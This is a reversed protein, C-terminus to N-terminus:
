AAPLEPVIAGAYRYYGDRLVYRLPEPRGADPGPVDLVEPTGQLLPYCRGDFPGGVLIGFRADGLMLVEAWPSRAAIQTMIAEKVNVTAVYGVGGVRFSSRTRRTVSALCATCEM